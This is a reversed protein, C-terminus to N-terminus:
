NATVQKYAQILTKVEVFTIAMWFFLGGSQETSTDTDTRNVSILLVGHQIRSLVSGIYLASWQLICRPQICNTKNQLHWYHSIM